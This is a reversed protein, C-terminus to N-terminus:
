SYLSKSCTGCLDFVGRKGCGQCFWDDARRAGENAQREAERPDTPKSSEDM